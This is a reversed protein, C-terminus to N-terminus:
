SLPPPLRSLRCYPAAHPYPRGGALAGRTINDHTQDAPRAKLRPGRPHPPCILLTPPDLLCSRAAADFVAHCRWPRVGSSGWAPIPGSAAAASPARGLPRTARWPAERPPRGWARRMSQHLLSIPYLLLLPPVAPQSAPRGSPPMAAAPRAAQQRSATACRTPLQKWCGATHAQKTPLGPWRPSLALLVPAAPPTPACEGMRPRSRDAIDAM